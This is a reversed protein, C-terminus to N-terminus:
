LLSTAAAAKWPASTLMEVRALGLLDLGQLGCAAVRSALGITLAPVIVRSASKARAIWVAFFAGGVGVFLGIYVGIRALWILVGLEPARESPPAIVSVPMGISFVLSGGVPHGDASVIRYSVLVTGHLDDPLGIEVENDKAGVSVDERVKGTGDILKISAPAVPKNFRLRVIKPAQSLMSGDGPETSILSAHGFAGSAFGLVSLLTVLGAVFRM